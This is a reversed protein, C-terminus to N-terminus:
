INSIYIIISILVIESYFLVAYTCLIIKNSCSKHPCVKTCVRFILRMYGVYKTLICLWLTVFLESYHTLM